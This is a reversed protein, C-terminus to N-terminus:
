TADKINREDMLKMVTDWVKMFDEDASHHSGFESAYLLADKAEELRGMKYLCVAKWAHAKVNDEKNFDISAEADALAEPWNEMWVYTQARDRHLEQLHDQVVSTNEWEPRDRAIEIAQTYLKIAEDFNRQKFAEIGLDCATRIQNTRVLDLSICPSPPLDFDSKLFAKHFDNLGKLERTLLPDSYDGLPEVLGSTSNYSIPLLNFKQLRKSAITEPLTNMKLSRWSAM